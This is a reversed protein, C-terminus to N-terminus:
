YGTLRLKRTKMTVQWPCDPCHREMSESLLDGDSLDLRLTAISVTRTKLWTRVEDFYITDTIIQFVCSPFRPCLAHDLCRENRSRDNNHVDFSVVELVYPPIRQVYTTRLAASCLLGRAACKTKERFCESHRIARERSFAIRTISIVLNHGWAVSAGNRALSTGWPIKGQLLRRTTPPTGALLAFFLIDRGHVACGIAIKGWPINENTPKRVDEAKALM